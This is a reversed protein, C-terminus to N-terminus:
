ISLYGLTSEIRMFALYVGKEVIYKERMIIFSSYKSIKSIPTGVIM